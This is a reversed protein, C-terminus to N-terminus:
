HGALYELRTRVATSSDDSFHRARGLTAADFVVRGEMIGSSAHPARLAHGLEHLIIEGLLQGALRDGGNRGHVFQALAGTSVLSVSPSRGNFDIRLNAGGISSLEHAADRLDTDYGHPLHPRALEVARDADRGQMLYVLFTRRHLETLDGETQRYDVTVGRRVTPERSARTVASLEQRVINLALNVAARSLGTDGDPVIVVNFRDHSAQRMLQTTAANGVARQLALVRTAATEARLARVAV